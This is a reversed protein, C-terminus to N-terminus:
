LDLLVRCENTGEPGLAILKGIRGGMAPLNGVIELAKTPTMDATSVLLHALAVPDRALAARTAPQMAYAAATPQCESPPAHRITASRHAPPGGIYHIAAQNPTWYLIDGPLANTLLDRDCAVNVAGSVAVSFRGAGANAKVTAGANPIHALAVGLCRVGTWDQDEQVHTWADMVDDPPRDFPSTKTTTRRQGFVLHCPLVTWAAAAEDASSPANPPALQAQIAVVGIPATLNSPGPVADMPNHRKFRM